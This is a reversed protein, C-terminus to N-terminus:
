VVDEKAKALMEELGPFAERVKAEAKKKAVKTLM